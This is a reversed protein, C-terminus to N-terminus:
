SKRMSQITKILEGKLHSLFSNLHATKKLPIVSLLFFDRVNLAIEMNIEQFHRVRESIFRNIESESKPFPKKDGQALCAILHLVTTFLFQGKDDKNKYENYIRAADYAEVAQATSVSDFRLLNTVADRYTGPLTFKEGKYKFAYANPQVEFVFKDYNGLTEWIQRYLVFLTAESQEFDIDNLDSVGFFERLSEIYNGGAISFVRDDQTFEKLVQAIHKIYGVKFRLKLPDVEQEEMKKLWAEKKAFAREFKIFQSYTVEHASTPFDLAGLEKGTTTFLEVTRM